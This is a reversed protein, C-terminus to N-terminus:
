DPFIVVEVVRVGLCSLLNLVGQLEQEDVLDGTLTTACQTRATLQPFAGSMEDSLEGDVRILTKTM